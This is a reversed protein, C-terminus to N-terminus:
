VPPTIPLRTLKSQKKIIRIVPKDIILQLKRTPLTHNLTKFPYHVAAYHSGAVMKKQVYGKTKYKKLFGYM